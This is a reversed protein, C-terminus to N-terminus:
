AVLGVHSDPLETKQIQQLILAARVFDGIEETRRFRVVFYDAGREVITVKVDIQKGFEFLEKAQSLYM